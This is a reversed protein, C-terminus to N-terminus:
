GKFICGVVKGEKVILLLYPGVCRGRNSSRTPRDHAASTNVMLCIPSRFLVNPRTLVDENEVVIRPKLRGVGALM